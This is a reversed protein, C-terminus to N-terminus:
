LTRLAATVVHSALVATTVSGVGGPVPTIASVLPEVEEFLVDGCLKNAEENWNIGVDVIVHDEHVANADITGIHGAASIIIDAGKLTELLDQTRSHAITVTAHEALLMMSVPKGVVSSRGVVTVNAGQLDYGYFSLIRMCADATCPPFGIDQNTFVGFLSGQTIGDVDKSADLKNCAEEENLHPPLPRFMLCGHIKYDDNVRYIADLLEQQTCDESLIIKEIEIGLFAFRKEVSREYSLDDEREGVRIIALMPTVDQANCQQIGAALDACIADAVPKGELLKAM